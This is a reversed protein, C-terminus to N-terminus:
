GVVKQSKIEFRWFGPQQTEPFLKRIRIDADRKQFRQAWRLIAEEPSLAGPEVTGEILFGISDQQFSVLTVSPPLSFSLEKLFEPTDLSEERVQRFLKEYAAGAAQIQEAHLIASIAPRLEAIRDSLRMSQFGYWGGQIRLFVYFILLALALISFFPIRKKRKSM